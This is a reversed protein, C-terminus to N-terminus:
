SGSYFCLLAVFPRCGHVPGGKKRGLEGLNAWTTDVFFLAYFGFKVRTQGRTWSFCGWKKYLYVFAM